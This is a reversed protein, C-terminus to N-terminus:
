IASEFEIPHLNKRPGLFITPNPNGDTIGNIFSRCKYCYIFNGSISCEKSHGGFCLYNVFAPIHFLAQLTSNLYCTNGMNWMGSGPGTMVKYGVEVQDKRFLTLKAPPVEDLTKIKVAKKSISSSKVSSSSTGDGNKNIMEKSATSLVIYSSKITSKSHVIPDDFQVQVLLSKKLSTEMKQVVTSSGNKVKFTSSLANAIPDSNFTPM